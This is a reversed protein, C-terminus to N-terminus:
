DCCVFICDCSGIAETTAEIGVTSGVGSGDGLDEAGGELGLRDALGTVGRDELPDADVGRGRFEAPGLSGRRVLGVNM